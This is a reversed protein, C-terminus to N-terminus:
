RLKHRSSSTRSANSAPPSRSSIRAHRAGQPARRGATRLDALHPTPVSMAANVEDYAYHKIERLYNGIRDDLFSQLEPNDGVLANLNLPLEGEFLIKM